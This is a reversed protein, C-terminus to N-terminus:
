VKKFFSPLGLKRTSLTGAGESINHLTERKREVPGVCGSRFVLVVFHLAVGKVKRRRMRRQAGTM